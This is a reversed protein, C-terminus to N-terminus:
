DTELINFTTDVNNLESNKRFELVKEIMEKGNLNISNFTVNTGSPLEGLMGIKNKAAKMRINLDNENKDMMNLESLLDRTTRVLDSFAMVSSARADDKLNEKHEFIVEQMSNVLSILESRVFAKNEFIPEDDTRNMHEQIVESKILQVNESQQPQDINFATCLNKYTM